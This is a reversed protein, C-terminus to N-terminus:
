QRILNLIALMGWIMGTLVLMGILATYVDIHAEEGEVTMDM